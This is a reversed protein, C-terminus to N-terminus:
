QNISVNTSQNSQTDDDYIVMIQQEVIGTDVTGASHTM